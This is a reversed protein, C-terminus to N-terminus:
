ERATLVADSPWGTMAPLSRLFTVCGDVFNQASPRRANTLEVFELPSTPAPRDLLIMSEDVFLGECQKAVALAVSLAMVVGVCTRTPSCSVDVSPGPEQDGPAWGFIWFLTREQYGALGVEYVAVRKGVDNAVVDRFDSPIRTEALDSSSLRRGTDVVFGRRYRVGSWAEFVPTEDCRSFTRMFETAADFVDELSSDTKLRRVGLDVSM